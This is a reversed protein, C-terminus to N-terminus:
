FEYAGIDFVGGLPRPAGLFDTKVERLKEGHNTAPSGAKLKFNPTGSLIPGANVFNPNATINNSQVYYSKENPEICITSGPATAHCINNRIEHGQGPSVFEIGQANPYKQSNEYFINNIIRSNSTLRLWLSIAGRYNNYAITNNAILWSSAGGYSEDTYYAKYYYGYKSFCIEKGERCLPYGAVQIGFALNDYILNNTVAWNPGTAYIGHHQNCLTTGISTKGGNECKVFMGNRYIVNRDVIINKGNGHIGQAQNHHIKNRRLHINNGNYMVVGHWCNRIEIGEITINSIPRTYSRGDQFLVGSYQEQQQCDIIPLEGPAALLKVGSKGFQVPDKYTGGRVYTTEGGVMKKVAYAITAFPKSSTGPNSNNGTTAVYYVNGPNPPTISPPTDPNENTPQPGDESGLDITSGLEGSDGVSKSTASRFSEPGCNQFTIATLFLLLIVIERYVNKVLLM